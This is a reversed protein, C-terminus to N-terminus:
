EPKYGWVYSVGLGLQKSWGSPRASQQCECYLTIKGSYDFARDGITTVSIPIFISELSACGYFAEKEIIKVNKGLIVSSLEDCFSFAQAGISVLQSYQGCKVSELMACKSFADNGITKVPYGDVKKPIEIKGGVSRDVGIITAEGNTVEYRFSNDIGTISPESDTVDLSSPVDTKTTPTNRTFLVVALIALIVCATIVIVLMKKM